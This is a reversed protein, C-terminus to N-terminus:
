NTNKFVSLAERIAVFVKDNRLDGLGAPGKERLIEELIKISKDYVPVVAMKKTAEAYMKFTQLQLLIEAFIIRQVPHVALVDSNEKKLGQENAWLGAIKVLMEKEIGIVVQPVRTLKGQFGGRESHFYKIEGLTEEDINKKIAAFKKKETATGFTVDVSLSLHSLTRSVEEIELILDSGNFYDDFKSSRIATTRKGFWAGQGIQDYIIAELVEAYIGSVEPIIQREKKEIKLLDRDVNEKGYLETFSHMDIAHTELTKDAFLFAKEVSPHLYNPDKLPDINKEPNFQM